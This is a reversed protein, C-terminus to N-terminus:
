PRPEGDPWWWAGLGALPSIPFAAPERGCAWLTVDADADPDSGSGAEASAHDLSMAIVDGVRWVAPLRIDGVRLAAIM